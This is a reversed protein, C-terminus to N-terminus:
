AKRVHIAQSIMTDTAQFIRTSLQFGRQISILNTMERTLDTTSQELTQSQLTGFNTSGPQGLQATGSNDSPIYINNGNMQLATPNMFRALQITGAQTWDEGVRVQVEGNEQIQIEEVGAPITGSWVVPYGMVTVLKENADLSFQGDRTYGTKGAAYTVQFFGDGQIAVDMANGTQKLTGQGMLVQSSSQHTGNYSAKDLLEQFNGRNTKYGITNSNALNNSTIDLANMKSLMDMRSINMVHFLSTSM